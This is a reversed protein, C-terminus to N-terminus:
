AACRHLVCDIYIVYRELGVDVQHMTTSARSATDLAFPNLFM